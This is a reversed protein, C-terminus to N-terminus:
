VPRGNILVGDATVDYRKGGYVTTERRPADIAMVTGLTGRWAQVLEIGKTLDTLVHVRFGRSALRAHCQRQAPSLKGGKYKWECLLPAGAPSILTYDPWGAEITSERDSRARIFEIGEQRLWKSFPEHLTKVESM